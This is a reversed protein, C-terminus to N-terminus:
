HRQLLKDPKRIVGIARTRTADQYCETRTADRVGLALLGYYIIIQCTITNFSM